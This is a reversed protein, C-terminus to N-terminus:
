IHILSLGFMAGPVNYEDFGLDSTTRSLVLVFPRELKAIAGAQRSKRKLARRVVDYPDIAGGAGLAFVPEHVELVAGGCRPDDIWFDPNPGSEASEYRFPLQRGELYAELLREGPSKGHM